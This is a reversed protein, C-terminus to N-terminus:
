ENPVTEELIIRTSTNDKFGKKLKKEKEQEESM